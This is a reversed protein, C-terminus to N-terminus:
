GQEIEQSHYEIWRQIPEWSCSDVLARFASDQSYYQAFSTPPTELLFASFDGKLNRPIWWEYPDVLHEDGTLFEVVEAEVPEPSQYNEPVEDGLISCISKIIEVFFDKSPFFDGKAWILDEFVFGWDAIGHVPGRSFMAEAVEQEIPQELLRRVDLSSLSPNAALIGRADGYVEAELLQVTKSSLNPNAAVGALFHQARPGSFTLLFSHKTELAQSSYGLMFLERLLKEYKGDIYFDTEPWELTNAAANLAIVRGPYSISSTAKLVSATIKASSKNTVVKPQSLEIWSQVARYFSEASAESDVVKAKSLIEDLL